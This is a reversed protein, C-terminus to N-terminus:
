GLSYLLYASRKLSENRCPPTESSSITSGTALTVASGVDQRQLRYFAPPGPARILRYYTTADSSMRIAPCVINESTYYLIQASQDTMVGLTNAYYTSTSWAGYARNSSISVSAEGTGFKTWNPSADLLEDGRNFDDSFSVSTTSSTDIGNWERRLWDIYRNLGHLDVHAQDRLSYPQRSARLSNELRYLLTVNAIWELAHAARLWGDPVDLATDSIGEGILPQRFPTAVSTM